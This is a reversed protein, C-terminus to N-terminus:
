KNVDAQEQAQEARVAKLIADIVTNEDPADWLTRAGSAKAVAREIEARVYERLYQAARLREMTM